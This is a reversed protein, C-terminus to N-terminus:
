SSIGISSRLPAPTPSEIFSITQPIREDVTTATRKHDRSLNLVRHLLSRRKFETRKPQPVSFDTGARARQGRAVQYGSRSGSPLPRPPQREWGGYAEFSKRDLEEEWGYVDTSNTSSTISVACSSPVSATSDSGVISSTIAPADQSQATESTLTTTTALSSRSEHGIPSTTIWTGRYMSDPFKLNMATDDPTGHENQCLPPSIAHVEDHEPVKAPIFFSQQLTPSRKQDTQNGILKKSEIYSIEKAAVGGRRLLEDPNGLFTPSTQFRYSDVMQKDSLRHPSASAMSVSLSPRRGSLDVPSGPHAELIPSAVDNQVLSTQSLVANPRAEVQVDTPKTGEGRSNRPSSGPSMSAFGTDSTPPTTPPTMPELASGSPSAASDRSIVASLHTHHSFRPSPGSFSHSMSEDAFGIQPSKDKKNRSRTPSLSREDLSAATYADTMSDNSNWPTSYTEPGRASVVSNLFPVLVSEDMLEYIIKVARELASPHPPTYTCPLALIRDRVDSPLNVERPGNPAIYADLLKVWLMRVYECGQTNPSLPTHPDSDVM